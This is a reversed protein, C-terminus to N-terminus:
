IRAFGFIIIIINLFLATIFYLINLVIYRRIIKRKKVAYLRKMGVISYIPVMVMAVIFQYVPTSPIFKYILIALCFVVMAFTHINVSLILHGVYHRMRKRYFLWLLAAFFPMMFFMSWSFYKLIKEIYANPHIKVDYLDYEYTKGLLTFRSNERIEDSISKFNDIEFLEADEKISDADSNMEIKTELEKALSQQTTDIKPNPNYITLNNNEDLILFNKSDADIDISGVVMIFIFSFFLYLRFPPMYRARRGHMYDLAYKGPRTMVAVLSKWVRTDFAFINGAFDAMIFRFPQDYDKKSQGCHPCYNGIYLTHCNKCLTKGDEREYTALKNEETM